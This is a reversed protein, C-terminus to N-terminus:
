VRIPLLFLLKFPSALFTIILAFGLMLTGVSSDGYTAVLTTLGVMFLTRVLSDGNVVMLTTLGM